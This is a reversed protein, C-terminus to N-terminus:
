NPHEKTLFELMDVKIPTVVKFISKDMKRWLSIEQETWRYKPPPVATLTGDASKNWAEGTELIHKSIKQASTIDHYKGKESVKRKADMMRRGRRDQVLGQRSKIREGEKKREEKPMAHSQRIDAEARLIHMDSNANKVISAGGRDTKYDAPTTM